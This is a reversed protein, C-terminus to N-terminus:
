RMPRVIPSWRLVPIIPTMSKARIEASADKCPSKCVGQETIESEHVLNGCRSCWRIQNPLILLIRGEFDQSRAVQFDGLKKQTKEVMNQFLLVLTNEDLSETGDRKSKKIRASKTNRKASPPSVPHSGVTTDNGAGSASPGSITSV